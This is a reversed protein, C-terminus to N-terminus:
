YPSRFWDAHLVILKRSKRRQDDADSRNEADSDSSEASAAAAAGDDDDDLQGMLLVLSIMSLTKGLGMDDALIGGRPKQRERWMMWSLAYRQHDMLEVRLGKPTAALTDETPCTELSAHMQKLREVTLQKQTNFTNLGVRGTHEPQIADLAATIKSWDDRVMEVAPRNNSKTDAPVVRQTEEVRLKDIYADIAALEAALNAIRKGLAAGNDPLTHQLTTLLKKNNTLQAQLDWRKKQQETLYAASVYKLQKGKPTFDTIKQQVLVSKRPLHSSKPTNTTTTSIQRYFSFM